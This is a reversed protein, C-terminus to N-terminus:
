FTWLNIPERTKPEQIIERFSGMILQKKFESNYEKNNLNYNLLAAHAVWSVFNLSM